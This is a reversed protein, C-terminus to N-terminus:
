RSRLDANDRLVGEDKSLIKQLTVRTEHWAAKGLSMFRNLTLEDFVDQQNALVPGTFLSKVASLDLIEEGIAVGIRHRENGITSFVGFPLNEIPFDSGQPVNVFSM